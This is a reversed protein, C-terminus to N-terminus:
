TGTFGSPLVLSRVAFMFKDSSVKDTLIYVTSGEGQKKKEVRIEPYYAMYKMSESDGYRAEWNLISSAIMVLEYMKSSIDVKMNKYSETKSKTITLDSGINVLIHEPVLEVSINM